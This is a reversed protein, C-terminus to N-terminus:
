NFYVFLSVLIINVIPSSKSEGRVHTVLRDIFLFAVLYLGHLFGWILFNAGAGHWLGGLIMTLMLAFVHRPLGYRNGGLSIYLYDRLWGSLSIHWRRWFERPSSSTYPADFNISLEVGIIRSIGRAMDVYGTFDLYIQLGFGFVALLVTTPTSTLVNAFVPDIMTALTDAFSKRLFGFCFLFFGSVFISYTLKRPKLLQPLLNELREIPGAVLQPFYCVFAAYDIISDVPQIRRRYVDISYSLSQFIYFSIGVPLVLNPLSWDALNDIGLISVSDIFFNYYKFFFLIGINISISFLLLGLRASKKELRSIRKSIYFDVVITLWL